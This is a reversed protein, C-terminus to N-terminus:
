WSKAGVILWIPATSHGIAPRRARGWKLLFRHASLFDGLDRNLGPLDRDNAAALLGDADPARGAGLLDLHDCRLLHRFDSAQAHASDVLLDLLTPKMENLRSLPLHAETKVRHAFSSWALTPSAFRGQPVIDM